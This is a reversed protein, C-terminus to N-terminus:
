DRRAVPTVLNIDYAYTNDRTRQAASYIRQASSRM